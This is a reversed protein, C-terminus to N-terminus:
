AVFGRYTPLRCHQTIFESTIDLAGFQTRQTYYTRQTSHALTHTNFESLVDYNVDDSVSCFLDKEPGNDLPM